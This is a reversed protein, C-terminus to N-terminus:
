LKFRNRSGSIPHLYFPEGSKRKQGAHLNKILNLAQMIKARDLTKNTIIKEIFEVEQAECNTVGHTIQDVEDELKPRIEYLAQPM